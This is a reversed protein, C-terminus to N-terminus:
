LETHKLAAWEEKIFDAAKEGIMITPANTNGSIIKPMISADAVRLGKVGKVLLQSDVVAENDSDPGMKATGVPHYLTTSMHSIYCKWYDDSDYELDSCGPINLKVEEMEHMEFNKTTLFKQKHRIGRLVTDVDEEEELYNTFIKPMEFPNSSRLEIKGVSKPNLLTVLCILIEADQSADLVSEIIEDDYGLTELFFQLKPAQKLFSVYHLQIDPFQGETNNLTNIFGVLDTAGISSLPGVRHMAYMYMWDSLEELTQVEARSKHFALVYPVILHDQLNHGVPLDKITNIGLTNLHDEPGIGSLILIQPTNIAGASLVIEKKAKAAYQKGDIMFKVTDAKGEENMEIKTVHANKIVHFNPRRKAPLLFATASSCRMGYYTNGLATNFGLTQHANADMTEIHGLEFAAEYLVTKISLINRFPTVKLVGETGHYYGDTLENVWSDTLHESKKFYELVSKYDWTPNGLEEWYDYDRSNGRIYLMLNIASSGGLLKGRPWYSGKKISKSAKDSKEAYYQWDFETKQLEFVFLPIQM